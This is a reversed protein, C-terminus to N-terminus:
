NGAMNTHIADFRASFQLTASQAENNTSGLLHMLSIRVHSEEDGVSHFWDGDRYMYRSQVKDPGIKYETGSLSISFESISVGSVPAPFLNITSSSEPISFKVMCRGQKCKAISFVKEGNNRKLKRHVKANTVQDVISGLSSWMKSLEFSSLNDRAKGLHWSAM